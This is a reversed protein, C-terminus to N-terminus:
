GYNLSLADSLKLREEWGTAAQQLQWTTQPGPRDEVILRSPRDSGPMCPSTMSLQQARQWPRVQLATGSPNGDLPWSNGSVDSRSGCLSCECVAQERNSAALCAGPTRILSVEYVAFGWWYRQRAEYDVGLRKFSSASIASRLLWSPLPVVPAATARCAAALLIDVDKRQRM